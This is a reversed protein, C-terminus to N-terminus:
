VTRFNESSHIYSFFLNTQGPTKGRDSLKRIVIRDAIFPLYQQCIMDFQRKSTYSFNFRYLFTFHSNLNDFAHLLNLGPFYDFIDFLIEDPLLEM